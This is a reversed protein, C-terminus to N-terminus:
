FMTVFVNLLMILVLIVVYCFLCGGGAQLCSIFIEYFRFFFSFVLAEVVFLHGDMTLM